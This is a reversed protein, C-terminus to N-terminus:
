SPPSFQVPFPAVIVLSGVLLTIMIEDRTISRESLGTSPINKPKGLALTNRRVHSSSLRSQTIRFQPGAKIKRIAILTTELSTKSWSKTLVSSRESSSM